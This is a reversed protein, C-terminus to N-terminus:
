PPPLWWDGVLESALVKEPEFPKYFEFKVRVPTTKTMIPIQAIVREETRFFLPDGPILVPRVRVEGENRTSRKGASVAIPESALPM